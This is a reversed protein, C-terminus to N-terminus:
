SEEREKENAKQRRNARERIRAWRRRAARNGYQDPEVHPTVERVNGKGKTAANKPRSM